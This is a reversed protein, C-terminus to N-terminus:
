FRSIITLSGNNTKMLSTLTSNNTAKKCKITVKKLDHISHEASLGRSDDGNESFLYNALSTKAEKHRSM